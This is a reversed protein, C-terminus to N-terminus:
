YSTLWYRLVQNITNGQNITNYNVEGRVLM